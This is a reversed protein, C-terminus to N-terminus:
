MFNVSGQVWKNTLKLAMKVSASIGILVSEPKIELKMHNTQAPIFCLLQMRTRVLVVTCHGQLLPPRLRTGFSCNTQPTFM